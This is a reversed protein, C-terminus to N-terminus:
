KENYLTKIKDWKEKVSTPSLATHNDCASQAIDSSHSDGQIKVPLSFVTEKGVLSIGLLL